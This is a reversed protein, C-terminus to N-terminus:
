GIKNHRNIAALTQSAAPKHSVSVIGTITEGTFSLGVTVGVVIAVVSSVGVVTQVVIFSGSAPEVKVTLEQPTFLPVAVGVM